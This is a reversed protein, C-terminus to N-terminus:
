FITVTLELSNYGTDAEWVAENALRISYNPDEQLSAAADPLNLFVAYDGPALEAPINAWIGLTTENGPQPLWLRPDEDYALNIIYENGTVGHRFILEAARPNYLTGFGDNAMRIEFGAASGRAISTPGTTELLRFRYGLRKEVEPLCNGTIHEALLNAVDVRTAELEQILEGCPVADWVANPFDFCGADMIGVLPVYLSDQNLYPQLELRLARVDPHYDSLYCEDHFGYQATPTSSFATVENLPTEGYAEQKVGPYRLLARRESPLAGAIADLLELSNDNLSDDLNLNGSSSDHWEGWPGVFGAFMFAMADANDSLVPSLQELHGLIQAKSADQGADEVSPWSYVFLPALKVGLQRATEFDDEIQDLFSAPMASNRWPALLYVVRVLRSQKDAMEALIYDSAVSLPPLPEHSDAPPQFLTLFGREPNAFNDQSAQYTVAQLSSVPDSPPTPNQASTQATARANEVANIWDQQMPEEPTLWDGYTDAEHYFWVYSDARRLAHTLTTEMIEPNMDFGRDLQWPYTYVGFSLDVKDAWTSRLAPPIFAANVAESAIDTKRWQYSTEFDAQSRYQYVEGGDIVTAQPGAAELLGVFFDGRLDNENVGVQFLSVAQPTAPESVYPGHLVLIEIDPFVETVAQMVQQGRLRAQARYETLTTTAAFAMDEPYTWLSDQYEENDFFIGKFGVDHAARALDRWNQVTIDWAADDFFDGPKDVHLKLFNHDFTQFLGEAPELWDTYFDEYAWREGSMAYWSAPINVVMGDFPLSEVYNINALLTYDLPRASISSQLYII